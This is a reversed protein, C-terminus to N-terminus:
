CYKEIKRRDTSSDIIEIDQTNALICLTIPDINKVQRLKEMPFSDESCDIIELYELFDRSMKTHTERIGLVNKVELNSLPVEVPRKEAM